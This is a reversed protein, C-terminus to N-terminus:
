VQWMIQEFEASPRLLNITAEKPARDRSQSGELLEVFFQVPQNAPIKLLTFPVAVEIIRDIIKPYSKM